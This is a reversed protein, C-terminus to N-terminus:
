KGILISVSAENNNAVALDIRGDSNFDEALVFFPGKGTFFNLPPHKFKGDGKGLMYSINNSRTNVVVLDLIQDGNLDEAIASVPGGDAGIDRQRTYAGNKNSVMLTLSDGLGNIALVDARNDQNFDASILALPNMGTRYRDGRTFNGDGKGWYFVVDSSQNGNNAIALDLWGDDNFHGSIIGTPIAGPDGVVSRKFGGKGDGLLIILDGFRSVIAIDLHHDENFDDLAAAYPSRDTGFHNKKLLLGGGQNMLIDLRDEGNLLVGLDTRNDENFDGAIVWRPKEGVKLTKTEPFSADNKGILITISDDQTNAVIIDLVGDQTLDASIIHSPSEGVSYNIPQRFPNKPPPDQKLCGGALASFFLVVFIYSRLM